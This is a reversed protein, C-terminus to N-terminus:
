RSEYKRIIEVVEWNTTAHAIEFRFIDNQLLNVLHFMAKLHKEKDVTSLCCVWDIPDYLPHHFYVPKKLRTLSM